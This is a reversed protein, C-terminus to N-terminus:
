RLGERAVMIDLASSEFDPVIRLRNRDADYETEKIFFTRLSDPFPVTFMAESPVLDRIRFVDGARVMYLPRRRKGKDWAWADFKTTAFQSPEKLDDLAADRAAEAGADSAGALSLPFERTGYKAVSDADTAFATAKRAGPGEEPDIASYVALISNWLNAASRSLTLGGRAVDRLEFEWDVTDTVKPFLYPVRNEWVAFYWTRPPTQDDGYKLVANVIQAPKEYDTFTQPAIDLVTDQLNATSTSIDPSSDAIVDTIIETATYSIHWYREFHTQDFMSSWYGLCRVRMGLEGPYIDEVRGEWVIGELQDYALIRYFHYEEAWLFADRVSLRPEFDLFTFGGHLGTGLRVRQIAGTLVKIQRPSSLDKDYLYYQLGM